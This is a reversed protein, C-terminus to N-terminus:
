RGTSDSNPGPLPELHMDYAELAGGAHAGAFGSFSRPYRPAMWAHIITAALASSNSCTTYGGEARGDAIHVPQRRLFATRGPGPQGALPFTLGVRPGMRLWPDCRNLRPPASVAAPRVVSGSSGVAGYNGPISM